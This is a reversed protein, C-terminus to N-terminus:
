FFFCRPLVLWKRIYTNAIGDIRSAMTSPIECVKLPWMICQFLTLQYCWLKHKGPLQSSEIRALGHALQKQVLRGTQQISLDATYERGLSKILKESLLPIKKGGALFVTKDTRM